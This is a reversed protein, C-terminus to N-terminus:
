SKAKNYAKYSNVSKFIEFNVRHDEFQDELGCRLSFGDRSSWVSGYWTKVDSLMLNEWFSVLDDM